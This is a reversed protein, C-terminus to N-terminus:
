SLAGIKKLLASLIGYVDAGLYIFDDVGSQKHAEIQEKPFGALIVSINKDADKIGKTNGPVLEPYTEDTSCIVVANANSKLAAEVAEDTTAFGNPYEVDFGGAEFFGRSFDARGKFQKVPGMTALFIKPKVGTKIKYNECADRLSEFLEGTRFKILKNVKVEEGRVARTSQSIEGLTAGELAAEIGIEIIDSNIDSLKQLKELIASNKKNDGEIRYKQLYEARKKKFEEKNLLIPKVKEEKTNAYMNVGVVVSKRKAIDKTKAATVESILSQVFGSKLAEIIGGKNEIEKFLKWSEKLLDDTLKEVFYSGGAPDILKSLNSEENLIIQTNRAIRRSFTDPLSFSENFPNTHISDVGGVVASFAETTTRLMNVYPDYVTQNSLSTKAHIFMKRKEEAVGFQELVKSWMVRAARFKAVEMFYFPGAGFTFRMSEAVTEASLGKEIMQNLYEVATSIVFALEQVATAGANNYPMGSIGVTKFGNANKNTWEVSLKMKDFAFEFSVPLIGREALYGIPDSHISGSLKKINIKKKKLFANFLMLFLVSTFGADVHIPYKTIDIGEFVRELSKLGSVSLGGEGVNETEAYDADQGLKTAEDLNINISTQGRSLDNKLAANLEDADAYPIEQAVEWSKGLYGSAKTGRVYNTFGPLEDSLELNEIDSKTYIPKLDIGEYTKTILKKEYSAGKLEAEVKSKWEEFTPPTFEKKLNLKDDLTKKKTELSMVDDGLAFFIL